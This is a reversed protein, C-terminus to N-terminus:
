AYIQSTGMGDGIMLIINKAYKGNSLDNNQTKASHNKEQCTSNSVLLLTLFPLIFFQVKSFKM